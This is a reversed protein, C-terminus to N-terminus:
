NNTSYYAAGSDIKKKILGAQLLETLNRKVTRGSITNFEYIIDKTRRDPFSKIFELIKHKNKNLETNRKIAGASKKSETQNINQADKLVPKEEKLKTRFYNKLKIVELKIRLLSTKASLSLPSRKLFNLYEFEEITEILDDTAGIFGQCQELSKAIDDKQESPLMLYSLSFNRILGNLKRLFFRDKVFNQLKLLLFLTELFLNVSKEKGM